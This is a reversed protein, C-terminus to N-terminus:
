QITVIMRDKCIALLRKGHPIDLLEMQEIVRVCYVSQLDLDTLVLINFGYGPNDDTRARVEEAFFKTCDAM